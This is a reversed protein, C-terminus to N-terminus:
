SRSAPDRQPRIAQQATDEHGALEVTDVCSHRIATKRRGVPLESSSSPKSAAKKEIPLCKM